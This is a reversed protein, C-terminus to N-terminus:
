RNCIPDGGAGSKESKESVLRRRGCLETSESSKGSGLRRGERKEGNDSRGAGWIDGRFGGEDGDRVPEQGRDRGMRNVQLARGSGRVSRERVDDRRLSASMEGRGAREKARVEWM